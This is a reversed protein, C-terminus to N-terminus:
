AQVKGKGETIKGDKEAKQQDYKLKADKASIKLCFM